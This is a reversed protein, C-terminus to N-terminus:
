TLPKAPDYNENIKKGNKEGGDSYELIDGAKITM